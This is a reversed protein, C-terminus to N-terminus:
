EGHQGNSIRLWHEAHARANAAAERARKAAEREEAAGQTHEANEKRVAHEDALDAAKDLAAATLHLSRSLQRASQFTHSRVLQNTTGPAERVEPDALDAWRRELDAGHREYEAMERQLQARESDGHGAWYHAAREHTEAAREHRDAAALHHDPTDPMTLPTHVQETPGPCKWPM